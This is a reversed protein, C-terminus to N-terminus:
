STSSSQFREPRRSARQAGAWWSSTSRWRRTSPRSRPTKWASAVTPQATAARGVLTYLPMAYNKAGPINFYAATAGTAIVLQDYHMEEDEDLVVVNRSRDVSSVRAHRVRVNKAHGFITRIPYAVDSPELGATAVQYLLPLFTHFNHRDIITVRVPRIPSSNSPLSVPLAQAWSSWTRCLSITPRSIGNPTLDGDVM